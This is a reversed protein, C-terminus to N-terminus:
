GAAYVDQGIKGKLAVIRGAAHASGTVDSVVELTEGAVFIDDRGEINLIVDPGALFTDDGLNFVVTEDQAVAATAM